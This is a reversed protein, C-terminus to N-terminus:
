YKLYSFFLISYLVLMHLPYIIYPIGKLDILGNKGDYLFILVVSLSALGYYNKYSMMFTIALAFMCMVYVDHRLKYFIFILLIGELWYDTKLFYCIVIAIGAFVFHFADSFRSTFKIVILLLLGIVYTFIVNQVEFYYVRNAIMLDFPIESILALGLLRISYKFLNSTKNFGEVILFAFIPFSLRGICRCIRYLLLWSAAEPLKIANEFLTKDYGYLKGCYILAYGCHDIIMTIIAILKLTGRSCAFEIKKRELYRRLNM